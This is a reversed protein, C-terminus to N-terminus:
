WEGDASGSCAGSAHGAESDQRESGGWCGGRECVRGTLDIVRGHCLYVVGVPEAGKTLGAGDPRVSPCGSPRLGESGLRSVTSPQM